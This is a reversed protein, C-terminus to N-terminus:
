FFLTLCYYPLLLHNRITPSLCSLELGISCSFEGSQTCRAVVYVEMDRQQQQQVLPPPKSNQTIEIVAEGGAADSRQTEESGAMGNGRQGDGAANSSSHFYGQSALLADAAAEIAAKQMEERKQARIRDAQKRLAVNTLKIAKPNQHKDYDIPNGDEDLDPQHEHEHEERAGLTSAVALHMEKGFRM